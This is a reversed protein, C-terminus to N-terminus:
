EHLFAKHASKLQFSFVTTSIGAMLFSLGVWIVVAQIGFVIPWILIALSCLMLLIGTAITWGSGSIQMSNMDGGLGILTFSRFLLWFGLFIPLAAASLAMNFILILGLIVEIIGAALLWGRGTILHKNSLSLVIESVGSCLIVLGFLLSMGLYSEGPYLFVVVGVIFLLIGLLLLLWWHRIAEKSKEWLSVFYSNMINPNLILRM